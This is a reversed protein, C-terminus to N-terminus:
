REAISRCEQYLLHCVLLCIYYLTLKKRLVLMFMARVVYLCLVIQKGIMQMAIKIFRHTRHVSPPIILSGGDDDFSANILFRMFSTVNGAVVDFRYDYVKCTKDPGIHVTITYNKGVLIQFKVMIVGLTLMRYALCHFSLNCWVSTPLKLLKNM